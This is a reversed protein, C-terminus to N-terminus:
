RLGYSRSRSTSIGGTIRGQGSNGGADDIKKSVTKVKSDVEKIANDIWTLSALHADLVSTITNIPDDVSTANSGDKGVSSSSPLNLANVSDIM